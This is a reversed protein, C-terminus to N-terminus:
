TMANVLFGKRNKVILLKKIKDLEGLAELEDVTAQLVQELESLDRGSKNVIEIDMQDSM